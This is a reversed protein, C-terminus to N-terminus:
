GCGDHGRSRGSMLDWDSDPPRVRDDFLLPTSLLESLSRIELDPKMSLCRDADGYGYSAWCSAIGSAQAFEIDASTDGIMLFASLPVGEFLPRVRRVFAEPNPKVPEGPDAALVASVKDLLRFRNLATEIAARGKNSLVVIRRDARHLASLTEDAGDFLVTTEQDVESYLERYRGVCEVVDASTAGTLLKAFAEELVVGSAIVRDITAESIAVGREHLTRFHMQRRREAHCRSHRRLRLPSGPLAVHQGDVRVPERKGSWAATHRRDRIFQSPSQGSLPLQNCVCAPLLFTEVITVVYNPASSAM